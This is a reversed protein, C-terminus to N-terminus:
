TQKGWWYDRVRKALGSPTEGGTMSKTKSLALAIWAQNNSTALERGAYYLGAELITDIDNTALDCAAARQAGGATSGFALLVDLADSPVHFYDRKSTDGKPGLFWYDWFYLSDQDRNHKRPTNSRVMRSLKRTVFREELATTVATLCFKRVGINVPPSGEIRAQLAEAARRIEPAIDTKAQVTLSHALICMATSFEDGTAGRRADDIQWSRIMGDHLLRSRLATDVEPMITKLSQVRAQRLALLFFALRTTLAFYRPGETDVSDRQEWLQALYDIAQRPIRDEGYALATTVVGACTGYLGVQAGSKQGVFQGWGALKGSPGSPRLDNLFSDALKRLASNTRADDM